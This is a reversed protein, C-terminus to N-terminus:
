TSPPQVAVQDIARTRRYVFVAAAWITLFLVIVGYGIDAFSNALGSAVDWAGGQRGFRDALLAAVEVGGVVLALLVSLATVTVNYAFKRGPDIFAWGYAGVMLVSDATDILAM